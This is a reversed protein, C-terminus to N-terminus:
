QVLTWTKDPNYETLKRAIDVTNTGLDKQYVKGNHSVIFTMVGGQDYDSPYAVLAFGAIMNGNIVYDYKGGPADPGQSKLIRFQYGHYEHPKGKAPTYGEAEAQAILPGFPSQPEGAKVEWYLGDKKDPSSLLHQAYKLVGSDDREASAYERQAQVYDHCVQIADLEDAGIRRALIEAKGAETDFFWKGGSDRTVPIPFPWDDKGIYIIAKNGEPSLAIRSHEAFHGAFEKYAAADAVKDGTLLEKWAPGLIQRVKEHDCTKVADVMANVAADDTDFVMQGAGPQGAVAQQPVVQTAPPEAARVLPGATLLGAVAVSAISLSSVIGRSIKIKM